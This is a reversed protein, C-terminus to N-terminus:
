QQWKVIARISSIKLGNLLIKRKLIPANNARMVINFYRM